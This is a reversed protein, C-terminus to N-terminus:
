FDVDKSESSWSHNALLTRIFEVLLSVAWCSALLCLIRMPSSCATSGGLLQASSSLTASLIYCNQRTSAVPRPPSGERVAGDWCGGDQM